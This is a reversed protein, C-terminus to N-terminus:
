EEGDWERLFRQLYEQMYAHRGDAIRRATETNMRDRLLLLKEYFHNVTSSSGSKYEEFSAHSRPATLPDHLPLSKYGGYAFARAIGIAGIADLRDADQVVMSELSSPPSTQTGAGRFTVEEIIRCIHDVASEEMGLSTLWDHAVQPGKQDDGDNFKYDAIDHLLAAIQVVLLDAGEVRAIRLANKWVREIHPWDHGPEAHELSHQVYTRTEELITEEISQSDMGMKNRNAQELIGRCSM